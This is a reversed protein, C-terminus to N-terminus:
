RVDRWAADQGSVEEAGAAHRTGRAAHRTGRAAHRTGRASLPTRSRDPVECEVPGRVVSGGSM